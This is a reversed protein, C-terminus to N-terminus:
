EFIKNHNHYSFSVHSEIECIKLHHYNLFKIEKQIM